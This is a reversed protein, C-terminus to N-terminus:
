LTLQVDKTYSCIDYLIFNRVIYISFSTHDIYSVTGLNLIFDQGQNSDNCDEVLFVFSYKWYEKFFFIM